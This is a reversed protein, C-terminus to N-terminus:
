PIASTASHDALEPMSVNMVAVQLGGVALGFFLAARAIEVRAAQTERKAVNQKRTM